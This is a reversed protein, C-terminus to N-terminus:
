RSRQRALADRVVAELEAPDEASNSIVSLENTAVASSPWVRVTPLVGPRAVYLHLRNRAVVLYNVPASPVLLQSLCFTLFMLGLAVEPSAHMRLLGAGVLLCAMALVAQTVLKKRSWARLWPTALTWTVATDAQVCLSTVRGSGHSDEGLLRLAEPIRINKTKAPIARSHRARMQLGAPGVIEPSLSDLSTSTQRTLSASDTVRRDWLVRLGVLEMLALALGSAPQQYLVLLVVIPNMVGILLFVLHLASRKLPM